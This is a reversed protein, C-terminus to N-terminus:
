NRSHYHVNNIGKCYNMSIYKQMQRILKSTETLATEYVIERVIRFAGQALSGLKFKAILGVEEFLDFDYVTFLLFWEWGCIVSRWLGEMDRLHPQDIM